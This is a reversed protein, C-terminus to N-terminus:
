VKIFVFGHKKLHFFTGSFTKIQLINNLLIIIKIRQPTTIMILFNKLNECLFWRQVDSRANTLDM